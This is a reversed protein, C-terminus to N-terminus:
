SDAARLVLSLAMVMRWPRATPPEVVTLQVVLKRAGGSVRPCQRARCPRPSSVSAASAGQNARM